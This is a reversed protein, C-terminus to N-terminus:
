KALNKQVFIAVATELQSFSGNNYLVHDALQIKKDDALQIAIKQKATARDIKDRLMLRELRITFDTVILLSQDVLHAQNAEFLLPCDYVIHKEGTQRYHLVQEKFGQEIAPHTIANLQELAKKDHRVLTGLRDRDLTGDKKIYASGFCDQITLLAKQGPKVIAKALQDADIIPYHYIKSLIKSVSSKGSAIGGTLGLLM